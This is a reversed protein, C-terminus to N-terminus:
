CIACLSINSLISMLLYSSKGMRFTKYVRMFTLGRTIGPIHIISIIKIVCSRHTSRGKHPYKITSFVNRNILYCSLKCVGHNLVCALIHRRIIIVLEHIVKTGLITLCANSISSIGKSKCVLGISLTSYVIGIKNCCLLCKIHDIPPLCPIACCLFKHCSTKSTNLCGM